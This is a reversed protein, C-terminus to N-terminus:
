ISFTKVKSQLILSGHDFTATMPNKEALLFYSSAFQGTLPIKKM